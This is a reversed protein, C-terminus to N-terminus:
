YTNIMKHDQGPNLKIGFYLVCQKKVFGKIIGEDSFEHPNDKTLNAGPHRLSLM